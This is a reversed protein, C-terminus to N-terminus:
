GDHGEIDVHFSALVDKPILAVIDKAGDNTQRFFQFTTSTMEFEDAEVEPVGHM